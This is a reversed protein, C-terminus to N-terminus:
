LETQTNYMRHTQILIYHCIDMGITDYLTNERHAGNKIGKKALMHDIAKDKM